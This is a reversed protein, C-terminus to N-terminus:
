EVRMGRKGRHEAWAARPGLTGVVATAPAAFVLM